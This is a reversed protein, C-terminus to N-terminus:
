AAVREGAVANGAAVICASKVADMVAFYEARSPADPGQRYDVFYGLLRAVLDEPTPSFIWATVTRQRADWDEDAYAVAADGYESHIFQLAEVADGTFRCYEDKTFQAEHRVGYEGAMIRRVLPTVRPDNHWLATPALRTHQNYQM